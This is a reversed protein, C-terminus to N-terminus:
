SRKIIIAGRAILNDFDSATFGASSRDFDTIYFCHQKRLIRRLRKQENRDKRRAQRLLDRIAKAEGATFSDKGKM